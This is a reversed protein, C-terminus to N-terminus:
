IRWIAWFFNSSIARKAPKRSIIGVFNIYVNGSSVQKQNIPFKTPNPLGRETVRFIGSRGVPM